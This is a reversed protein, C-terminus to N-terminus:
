YYDIIRRGMVLDVGNVSIDKVLAANGANMIIGFRAPQQHSNIAGVPLLYYVSTSVM